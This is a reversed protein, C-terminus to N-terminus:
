NSLTGLKVSCNISPFVNVTKKTNLVALDNVIIYPSQLLCDQGFIELGCKWDARM